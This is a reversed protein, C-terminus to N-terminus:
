KTPSYPLVIFKKIIGKIGCGYNQTAKLYSIYRLFKIRNAQSKGNVFDYPFIDIWVGCNKGLKLDNYSDKIFCTTENDRIQAHGNFYMRETDNTQLFYKTEKFYKPAIKLFIEYDDRPMFVDVDDDWPIFGQNRVTGICCGGCFYILLNNQECFKKLYLFMELGKLQLERLEGDKFKYYNNNEEM